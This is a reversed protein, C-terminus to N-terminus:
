HRISQNAKDENTVSLGESLRTNAIVTCRIDREGIEAAGLGAFSSTADRAFGELRHPRASEATCPFRCLDDGRTMTNPDFPVETFNMKTAPFAQGLFLDFLDVGNEERIPLGPLRAEFKRFTLRTRIKSTSDFPPEAMKAGACALGNEDDSVFANNTRQEFEHGVLCERHVHRWQAADDV